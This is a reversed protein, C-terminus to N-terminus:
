RLWAVRHRAAVEAEWAKAARADAQAELKLAAQERAAEFKAEASAIMTLLLQSSPTFPKATANMNDM